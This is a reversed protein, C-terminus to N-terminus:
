GLVVLPVDIPVGTASFMLKQPYRRNKFMLKTQIIHTSYAVSLRKQAVVPTQNMPWHQYKLGCHVAPRAIFLALQTKFLM